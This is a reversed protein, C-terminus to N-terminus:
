FWKERVGKKKPTVENGFRRNGGVGHLAYSDSIPTINM